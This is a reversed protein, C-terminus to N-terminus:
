EFLSMQIRAASHPPLTCSLADEERSVQLESVTFFSYPTVEESSYVEARMVKGGGTFCFTRSRDFSDNILTLTLTGDKVTALASGDSGKLPCLRAGSHDKMMAFMQGNATLRASAPTILIAGEGVPQFYCCVPMDLKASEELLMHLMKAVFIGEGVCSPRHWAHWFNWEDFSIHLPKGTRDLSERMEKTIQRAKDVESVINKYTQAISGPSTYDMRVNSYHHLSVHNVQDALVSASGQAWEDNPYPGSSFLEVKGDAAKMVSIHTRALEAYDQPKLPGEMHGYGMENGLSWFRVNYPEPHGNEARKRGFGTDAEANCYEVWDASDQPSNWVLNVTLFPEAGVERCLAFFDDTSIEHHDYGHTYPQTEDEMASELPGRMDSPLLGDKWRYEGAFNGGPWRIITPGIEKLCKVVDARMGHFHGEAMMSLAGFLVEARECFVFRLTAEDDDMNPTLVFASTQWEGPILTLASSAYVAEGKRDTIEARLTVPLACKTVARLEYNQGARVTINEQAIGCLGPRMNQVSQAQLENRRHMKECGIHRTYADEWSLQFFAREGIGRWESAVGCNRAPRGAFKRNRLMQASLGGNVAARTHELNHGFVFPSLERGGAADIDFFLKDM